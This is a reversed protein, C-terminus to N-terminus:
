YSGTYVKELVDGMEALRESYPTLAVGNKSTASEAIMPEGQSNYVIIGIHDIGYKRNKDFGHDGTDFAIVMGEKLDSKKISKWDTYTKHDKSNVWLGQSSLDDTPVSKNLDTLVKYVFGSCDISNGSKDGLNYTKDRMSAVSRVIAKSTSNSPLQNFASVIEDGKLSTGSPKENQELTQQAYAEAKIDNLTKPTAGNKEVMNSKVVNSKGKLNDTTLEKAPTVPAPQQYAQQKIQDLTIGINQKPIVPQLPKQPAPPEQEQISSTTLVPPTNPLPV